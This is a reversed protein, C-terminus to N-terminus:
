AEKYIKMQFNNPENKIIEYSFNRASIENFLHEPSMRHKFLLVEDDQLKNLAMVAEILPQPAELNSVDLLIEKNPM